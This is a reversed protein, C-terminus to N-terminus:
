AIERCNWITLSNYCGNEELLCRCYLDRSKCVVTWRPCPFLARIGSSATARRGMIRQVEQCPEAASCFGKQARRNVQKLIKEGVLRYIEPSSSWQQPDRLRWMTMLGALDVAAPSRLARVVRDRASASTLKKQRRDGRNMHRNFTLAM